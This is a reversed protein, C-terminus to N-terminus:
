CNGVRKKSIREEQSDEDSMEAYNVRRRQEILVACICGV